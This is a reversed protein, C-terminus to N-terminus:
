QKFEAFHSRVEFPISVIVFVHDGNAIQGGRLVKESESWNCYNLWNMKQAFRVAAQHEISQESNDDFSSCNFISQNGGETFVKLRSPKTNTPALYKVQIAKM